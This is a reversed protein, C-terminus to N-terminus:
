CHQQYYIMAVEISKENHGDIARSTSSDSLHLLWPHILVNILGQSNDETNVINEKGYSIYCEIAYIIWVSAVQNTIFRCLIITCRIQPTPLARSWPSSRCPLWPLRRWSIDTWWSGPRTGNEVGALQEWRSTSRFSSFLPSFIWFKVM